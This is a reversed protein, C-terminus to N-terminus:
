LPLPAMALPVDSAVLGELLVIPGGLLALVLPSPV